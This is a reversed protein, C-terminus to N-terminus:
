IHKGLILFPVTRQDRSNRPNRLKDFDGAADDNEGIASILACGLVPYHCNLFNDRPLGIQDDARPTALFEPGLADHRARAKRL